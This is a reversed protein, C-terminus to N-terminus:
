QFWMQVGLLLLVVLVITRFYRDPLAQRVRRGLTVGTMAPIVTLVSIAMLEPTLLGSSLLGITLISSAFMVAMNIAQVSRDSDLRLAMVYPLLPMVQSGTLGTFIGNLFGAPVQLWGSHRAPLSIEPRLLAFASYSIISVGLCQKAWYRDLRLLLWLGAVIGPLMSVYLWRFRQATELLHNSGLAAGVNTLLAPVAVLCMAQELGMSYALIPLACSAFGLGTAGKILGAVTLGAAAIILDISGM